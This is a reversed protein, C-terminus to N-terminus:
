HTDFDVAFGETAQDTIDVEIPQEFPDVYKPQDSRHSPLTSSVWVYDMSVQDITSPTLDRYTPQRAAQEESINELQSRLAVFIVEAGGQRELRRREEESTSIVLARLDKAEEICGVITRSLGQFFEHWEKWLSTACKTRARLHRSRKQISTLSQYMMRVVRQDNIFGDEVVSRLTKETDDLIEDLQKIKVSPLLTRSGTIMLVVFSVAGTVYGFIDAAGAM